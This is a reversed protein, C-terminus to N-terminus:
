TATSIPNGGNVIQFHPSPTTVLRSVFVQHVSGVSEDWAVWPVTPNAPNMTGGAVRPDEADVAPNKNLSCAQEAALSAACSDTANLIGNGANGIVHWHFGGDVTPGSDSEAKAAFVLEKGSLGPTGTGIEYWVVWPVVDNAGTFAIDPEIGDRQVDVN